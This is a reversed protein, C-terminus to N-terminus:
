TEMSALYLAIEQFTMDASSFALEGSLYVSLDAGSEEINELFIVRDESSVEMNLGTEGLGTHVVGLSALERLVALLSM